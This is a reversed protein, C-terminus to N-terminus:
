FVLPDFFPFGNEEQGRPWERDAAVPLGRSFGTLHNGDPSLVLQQADGTNWRFVVDRQFCSWTGQVGTSPRYARGNAHVVIDDALFLTWVGPLHRRCFHRDVNAGEYASASQLPAALAALALITAFKLAKM